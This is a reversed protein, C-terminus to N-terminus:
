CICALDLAQLDGSGSPRAKSAGSTFRSWLLTARWWSTMQVGDMTKIVYLLHAHVRRCIGLYPGTTGKHWAQGRADERTPKSLVTSSSSGPGHVKFSNLMQLAQRLWQQVIGQYQLLLNLCPYSCFPTRRCLLHHVGLPAKSAEENQLALILLEITHLTLKM